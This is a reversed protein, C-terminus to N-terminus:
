GNTEGKEEVLNISDDKEVIKIKTPKIQKMNDEIIEGYDQKIANRKRSKKRTVLATPIEINLEKLMMEIYTNQKEVTAKLDEMEKQQEQMGKVLTAVIPLENMYYKSDVINGDEDKIPKKFVFNEDIEEMEQAIFGANIHKKDKKWDFSRINMQNIVDLANISSEEINEKLRGDSINGSAGINGEVQLGYEDIKLTYINDKLCVYITNNAGQLYANDELNLRNSKLFAPVSFYIGEKEEGFSNAARYSLKVYYIGSDADRKGWYMFKGNKNLNFSLGKQSNDQDYQSTGIQGIYTGNNYFYQGDKTLAMLLKKNSDKIQLQANIFQIFESIKNWAIQIAEANQEILTGLEGKGVKQTIAEKTQTIQSFAEDLNTSLVPDTYTVTDDDWTIQSRTWIYHGTTWKDQSTKWSGGTQTTNSTSLYYQEVTKKIGKGKTKSWKYDSFKNSDNVNTDTM